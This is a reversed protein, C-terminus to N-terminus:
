LRWRPTFRNGKGNNLRLSQISIRHKAFFLMWARSIALTVEGSDKLIVIVLMNSWARKDKLVLADPQCILPVLHVPPMICKFDYPIM